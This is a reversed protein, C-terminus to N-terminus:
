ALTTVQWLGALGLAALMSGFAMLLRGGRRDILRGVAPALLGSLMLALSFAGVVASRSAGLGAQLPEMILPFLYFVSGWAIIQTVGLALVAGWPEREAYPPTTV